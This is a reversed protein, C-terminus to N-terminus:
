SDQYLHMREPPVQSNVFFCNWNSVNFWIFDYYNELEQGKLLGIYNEEIRVFVDMENSTTVIDETVQNNNQDCAGFM